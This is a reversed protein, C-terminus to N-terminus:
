SVPMSDTAAFAFKKQMVTAVVGDLQLVALRVCVIRDSSIAYFVRRRRITM